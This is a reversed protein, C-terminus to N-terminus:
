GCCKKFKRGSGCPCPDNRGVKPGERRVTQQSQEYERMMEAVEKMSVELIANTRESVPPFLDAWPAAPDLAGSQIKDQVEVLMMGAIAVASQEVDGHLFGFQVLRDLRSRAGDLDERMVADRIAIEEFGLFESAHYYGDKGAPHNRIDLPRPLEAIERAFDDEDEMSLARHILVELNDAHERSVKSLLRRSKKGEGTLGYLGAMEFSLLPDNPYKEFLPRIKRLYVRPSALDAETLNNRFDIIDQHTDRVNDESVRIGHEAELWGPDFGVDDANEDADVVAEFGATEPANRTADFLLDPAGEEDMFESLEANLEEFDFNNGEGSTILPLALQGEIADGHAFSLQLKEGGASSYIIEPGLTAVLKETTCAAGEAMREGRENTFVLDEDDDWRFAILLVASLLQVDTDPTVIIERWATSAPKPLLVRINYVKM